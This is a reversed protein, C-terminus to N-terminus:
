RSEAAPSRRSWRGSSSGDAIDAVEQRGETGSGGAVVGIRGEAAPWRVLLSRGTLDEEQYGQQFFNREKM